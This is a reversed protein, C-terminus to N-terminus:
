ATKTKQRKQSLECFACLMLLRFINFGCSVFVLFFPKLPVYSLFFCPDKTEKKKDQPIIVQNWGRGTLWQGQRMHHLHLFAKLCALVDALSNTHGALQADHLSQGYYLLHMHSDNFGACVFRGQLDVASANGSVSSLLDADSGVQVFRGDEVAFAQCLPLTGTYVRGNYYVTKMM